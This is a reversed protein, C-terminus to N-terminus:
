VSGVAADKGSMVQEGMPLGPQQDTIPTVKERKANAEKVLNPETVEFEVFFFKRTHNKAWVLQEDTVKVTTSCTLEVEDAKKSQIKPRIVKLGNLVCASWTLSPRPSDPTAFIRLTLPDVEAEVTCSPIGNDLTAVSQFAAAVQHPMSTVGSLPIGLDLHLRFEKAPSNRPAWNRLQVKLMDGPFFEMTEVREKSESAPAAKRTTVRSHKEAGAKPAAKKKTHPRAMTKTKSM